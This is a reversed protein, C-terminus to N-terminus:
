AYYAGAKKQIDGLLFRDLGAFLTVCAYTVVLITALTTISSKEKRFDDGAISKLKSNLLCMSVILSVSLILLETLYVSAGMMHTFWPVAEQYMPQAALICGIVLFVSFVVIYLRMITKETGRMKKELRAQKEANPSKLELFRVLNKM